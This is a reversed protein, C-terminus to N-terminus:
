HRTATGKRGGMRRARRGADAEVRGLSRTESIGHLGRIHALAAKEVQRVREKTLGVGRGVEELTEGRGRRLLIEAAEPPVTALMAALRDAADRRADEREMRGPTDRVGMWRTVGDTMGVTRRVDRCQMRQDRHYGRIANIIYRSGLTSFRLGRGPDFDRAARVLALMAIGELEDPDDAAWRMKGVWARVLAVHEGADIM